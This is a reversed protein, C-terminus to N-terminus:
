TWNSIEAQKGIIFQPIQVGIQKLVESSFLQPPTHLSMYLICVKRERDSNIAVYKCTLKWSSIPKSHIKQLLQEISNIGNQSLIFNFHVNKEKETPSFWICRSLLLKKYRHQQQRWLCSEWQHLKQLIQKESCVNSPCFSLKQINCM